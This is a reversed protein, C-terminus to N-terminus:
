SALSDKTKKFFYKTLITHPYREFVEKMVEEDSMNLEAQVKQVFLDPRETNDEYAAAITGEYEEFAKRERDEKCCDDAYDCYKDHQDEPGDPDYHFKKM